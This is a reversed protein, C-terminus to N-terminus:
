EFVEMEVIDWGEYGVGTNSNWKYPKTERGEAIQFLVMEDYREKSEQKSKEIARQAGELTKHLSFTLYGTEYVCDSYQAAFIKM